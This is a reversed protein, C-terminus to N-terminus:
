KKVYIGYCLCRAFIIDKCEIKHTFRNIKIVPNLLSKSTSEKPDVWLFFQDDFVIKEISKENTTSLKYEKEIM